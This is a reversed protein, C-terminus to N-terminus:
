YRRRIYELRPKLGTGEFASMAEPTMDAAGFFLHSRCHCDSSGFGPISGFRQALGRAITCEAKEQTEGTIIADLIAETLLYDIHWHLKKDTRLHHNLRSRFGGLASGVYAYHSRPFRVTGLAGVMIMHEEPLSMLLVYSGRVKGSSKAPRINNKARTLAAVM